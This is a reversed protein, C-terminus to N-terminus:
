KVADILRQYMAASMIYRKRGNRAEEELTQLAKAPPWLTDHRCGGHLPIPTSVPRCRGASAGAARM